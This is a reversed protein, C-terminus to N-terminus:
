KERKHQKREHGDMRVSVVQVILLFVAVMNFGQFQLVALLIGIVVMDAWVYGIM